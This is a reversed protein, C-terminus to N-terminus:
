ASAPSMKEDSGRLGRRVPSFSENKIPDFGTSEAPNYRINSEDDM